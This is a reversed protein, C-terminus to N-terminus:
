GKVDTDSIRRIYVPMGNDDFVMKEFLGKRVFGKPVPKWDVGVGRFRESISEKNTWRDSIIM